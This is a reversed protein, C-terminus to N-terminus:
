LRKGGFLVAAFHPQSQLLAVSLLIRNTRRRCFASDPSFCGRLQIITSDVKSMVRPLLSLKSM